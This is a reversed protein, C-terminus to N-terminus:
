KSWDDNWVDYSGRGKVDQGSFSGDSTGKSNTEFLQEGNASTSILLGDATRINVIILAPAIYQIKKMTM